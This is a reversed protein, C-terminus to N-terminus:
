GLFDSLCSCLCLHDTPGATRVQDSEHHHELVVLAQEIHGIATLRDSSTNRALGITCLGRLWRAFKEVSVPVQTLLGHLLKQLAFSLM